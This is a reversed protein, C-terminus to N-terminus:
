SGMERRLRDLPQVNGRVGFVRSIKLNVRRRDHAPRMDSSRHRRDMFQRASLTRGHLQLGKFHGLFWNGAEDPSIAVLGHYEVSGDGDRFQLVDCSQISPRQAFPFHFRRELVGSVLQKLEGGTTSEPVGPIFIKM